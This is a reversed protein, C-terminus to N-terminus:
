AALLSQLQVSLLLDFALGLVTVSDLNLNRRIPMHFIQLKGPLTCDSSSGPAYRGYCIDMREGDAARSVAVIVYQKLSVPRSRDTLVPPEPAYWWFAVPRIVGSSKVSKLMLGCRCM